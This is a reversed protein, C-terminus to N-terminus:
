YPGRVYYIGFQDTHSPWVPTPLFNNGSYVDVESGDGGTFTRGFKHYIPRMETQSVGWSYSSQMHATPPVVLAVPLGAQTNSYPGHWPRQQAHYHAIREARVRPGHAFASSAQSALVAATLLALLFRTNLM